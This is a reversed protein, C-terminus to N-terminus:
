FHPSLAAFWGLQSARVMHTYATTRYHHSSSIPVYLSYTKGKFSRECVFEGIKEISIEGSRRTVVVHGKPKAGRVAVNWGGASNRLWIAEPRRRRRRM